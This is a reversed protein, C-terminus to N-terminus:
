AERGYPARFKEPKKETWFECVRCWWYVVGTVTSRFPGLFDHEKCAM